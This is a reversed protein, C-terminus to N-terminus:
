RAAPSRRPRAQRYYNSSLRPQHRQRVSRHAYHVLPCTAESVNLGQARVSQITKKSAGHATIMVHSTKVQDLKQAIRIGQARLDALVNENHVLDGLITLPQEQAKTEALEIADRM